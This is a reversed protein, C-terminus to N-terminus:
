PNLVQLRPCSIWTKSPRSVVGHLRASLDTCVTWSRPNRPKETGPVSARLCLVPHATTCDHLISSAPCLSVCAGPASPSLVVLCLCQQQAQQEGLQSGGAWM